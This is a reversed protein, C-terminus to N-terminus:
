NDLRAVTTDLSLFHVAGAAFLNYQRAREELWSGVALHAREVELTRLDEELRVIRGMAEERGITHVAAENVGYIYLAGFLVVSASFVAIVAYSSITSHRYSVRHM